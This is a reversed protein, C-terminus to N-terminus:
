ARRAASRRAFGGSRRGFQRSISEADASYADGSESDTRRAYRGSAAAAARAAFDAATTDSETDAANAATDAASKAAAPQRASDGASDAGFNRFEYYFNFFSYISSEKVYLIRLGTFILARFAGRFKINTFIFVFKGRANM